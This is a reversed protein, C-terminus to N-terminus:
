NRSPGIWDYVLAVFKGTREQADELRRLARLNLLGMVVISLAIVADGITM